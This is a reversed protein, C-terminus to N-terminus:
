VVEARATPVVLTRATYPPSKFKMVLILAQYLWTTFFYGGASKVFHLEKRYRLKMRLPRAKPHSTPISNLM